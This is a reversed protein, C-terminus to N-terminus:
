WLCFHSSIVIPIGKPPLGGTVLSNMGASRGPRSYACQPTVAIKVVPSAAGAQSTLEARGANGTGPSLDLAGRAHHDGGAVGAGQGQAVDAAVATM